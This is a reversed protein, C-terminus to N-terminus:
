DKGTIESDGLTEIETARTKAEDDEWKKVKHLASKLEDIIFFNEEGIAAMVTHMPPYPKETLFLGQRFFFVMSNWMCKWNGGHDNIFAKFDFEEFLKTMLGIWKLGTEVIRKEVVKKAKSILEKKEEGKEGWTKFFTRKQLNTPLVNTVYGYAMGFIFTLRSKLPQANGHEYLYAFLALDLGNGDNYSTYLSEQILSKLDVLNKDTPNQWPNMMAFQISEHCTKVHQRIYNDEVMTLNKGICFDLIKDSPRSFLTGPPSLGKGCILCGVVEIEHGKEEDKDYRVFDKFDVRRPSGGSFGEKGGAYREHFASLAEEPVPTAIQHLVNKKSTRGKLTVKDFIWPVVLQGVENLGKKKKPLHKTVPITTTPSKESPVAMVLGKLIGPPIPPSKGQLKGTFLIEEEEDDSEPGPGTSPADVVRGIYDDPIWMTFHKRDRVWKIYDGNITATTTHMVVATRYFDFDPGFEPVKATWTWQENTGRWDIDMCSFHNSNQTNDDHHRDWNHLYIIRTRTAKAYICLHRSDMEPYKGQENEAIINFLGDESGEDYDAALLMKCNDLNESWNEDTTTPERQFTAMVDSEKFYECDQKLSEVLFDRMERVTMPQEKMEHFMSFLLLVMFGCDGESEPDLLRMSNLFDPLRKKLYWLHDGLPPEFDSWEPDSMRMRKSTGVTELIMDEYQTEM